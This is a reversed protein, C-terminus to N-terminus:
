SINTTNTRSNCHSYQIYHAPVFDEVWRFQDQSLIDRIAVRKDKRVLLLNVLSQLSRFIDKIEPQITEDALYENVKFWDWDIMAIRHASSNRLRKRRLVSPSIGNISVSDIPPLDFPLRNEMISYILVGVSWSDTLFGNYKIGLLVEPAIYDQSGCRTSLYQDQSRLKKSLGFDSLNTFAPLETPVNSTILQVLESATYNLLINELKIDRHVINNEHLYGVTVLLECVIRKVVLWYLLDHLHDLQKHSTLYQLLTGGPCYQLFILQDNSHVVNAHEAESVLEEEGDSDYNDITPIELTISYDLLTTVCPFPAIQSLISLERRIFLKFNAMQSRSELPVTIAKIAVLTDDSGALLVTSFNGSGIESIYVFSKNLRQSYFSKQYYKSKPVVSGVALEEEPSTASVSKLFRPPTFPPPTPTGRPSTPHIFPNSVFRKTATSTPGDLLSNRRGLAPIPKYDSIVRPSVVSVQDQHDNHQYNASNGIQNNIQNVTQNLNQTNNYNLRTKPSRQKPLELATTEQIPSNNLLLSNALLTLYNIFLGNNLIPTPLQAIRDFSAASTSSASFIVPDGLGPSCDSAGSGVSNSTTNNQYNNSRDVNPNASNHNPDSSEPKQGSESMTVDSHQSYSENNRAVDTEIPAIQLRINNRYKSPTPPNPSHYINRVDVEDENEPPSLPVMLKNVVAQRAETHAM